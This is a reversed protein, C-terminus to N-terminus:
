ASIVEVSLTEVMNPWPEIQHPLSEGGFAGAEGGFKTVAGCSDLVKELATKINNSYWKQM